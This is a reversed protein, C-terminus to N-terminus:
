MVKFFQQYIEGSESICYDCHLLSLVNELLERNQSTLGGNFNFKDVVRSLEDTFQSAEFSREIEKVLDYDEFHKIRQNTNWFEVLVDEKTFVEQEM